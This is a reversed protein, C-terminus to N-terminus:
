LGDNAYKKVKENDNLECYIDQFPKKTKDGDPYVLPVFSGFLLPEVKVISSWEKKFKDKMTEKIMDTFTERDEISILRDQFVRMCEHAWLKVMDDDKGIARANSKAIGQFVKSVDRLNYTYHSKAPTPRFRKMTEKYIYITNSVLM